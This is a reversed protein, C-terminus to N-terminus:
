TPTAMASLEQEAVSAMEDTEWTTIISQTLSKRRSHSTLGPSCREGRSTILVLSSGPRGSRARMVRVDVVIANPDDQRRQWSEEVIIPPKPTPRPFETRSHGYCVGARESVSSFM